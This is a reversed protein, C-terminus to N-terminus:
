LHIKFIYPCLYAWFPYFISDSVILQDISGSQARKSFIYSVSVLQIISQFGYGMGFFVSKGKNKGKHQFFQISALTWAMFVDCTPM